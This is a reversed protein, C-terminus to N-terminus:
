KDNRIYLFKTPRFCWTIGEHSVYSRAYTICLAVKDLLATYHDNWLVHMDINSQINKHMTNLYNSILLYLGTTPVRISLRGNVFNDFDHWWLATLHPCCMINIYIYGSIHQCCSTLQWLLSTAQEHQRLSVNVVRVLMCVTYQYTPKMHLSEKYSIGLLQQRLAVPFKNIHVTPIISNTLFGLLFIKPYM